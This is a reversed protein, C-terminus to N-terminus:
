RRRERRRVARARVAAALLRLEAGATEPRSPQGPRRARWALRLLPLMDTEASVLQNLAARDAPRLTSGARMLLVTAFQGIRRLEYDAVAALEAGLRAPLFRDVGLALPLWGPGRPLGADLRDQRRGTVAQDHQRYSHLPRDVFEIRGAALACAAIWQDHFASPTGPPFPLVRERVLDARVLSAAGTVTNLLLLAALDDWQNVRHEWFSPALSRGDADILRLDSYVLTTNPDATLRALLVGLKDPDWVDDQDCLAVADADPPVLRLAREFNRYFGLNTAGPVLAFRQEGDILARTSALSEAGSGDDSIVCIWNRHTQARLSDLQQALHQPDPRYTALCIAVKPGDAPWSLAALAPPNDKVPTPAPRLRLPGLDRRLEAGDSLQVRLAVPVTVPRGGDRDGLEAGDVDPGGADAGGLDGPYLAIRTRAGSAVPARVGEARLAAAVDPRHGGLALRYARNGFLLEASRVPLDRHVLWGSVEVVQGAGVPIPEAPLPLDYYLREDDRPLATPLYRSALRVATSGTLEALRARTQALQDRLAAAEDQADSRARAEVANAQWARNAEEVAAALDAFALALRADKGDLEDRDRDVQHRLLDLERQAQDLAAAAREAAARHQNLETAVATALADKEALVQRERDAIWTTADRLDQETKERAQREITLASALAGPGGPRRWQQAPGPQDAETSIAATTRTAPQGTVAEQLAAEAAVLEDWRADATAVLGIPECLRRLVDRASAGDPWPHPAHDAVIERGFELLGRLQALEADVGSGALWERDVRTLEGDPRLIFNGPHVDLHDAPLVRVGRRRPLYPHKADNPRLGRASALCSDRWRVILEGLRDLDGTRLADLLHADLARGPVLYEAPQHQQRLWPHECDPGRETTHLVLDESLRRVRRWEPLRAASALWALGPEVVADLAITSRAAVVLFAPAVAAGIGDAVALGHLPRGSTVADNGGFVGHLPERVLKDVLEAADPRAFVREDLIVRPLKHDPYPLLWRQAALGADALLGSLAHRTWTRSQTTPGPYDALGIWSRDHHDETGGLLYKLGLQNEIALVLVGDESLTSTVARLLEAPGPGSRPSYELVGCLVALDRQGAGALGSELTDRVIRVGPLDRCRERAAEARDPDAEIGLVDAGVEGFARALVGSGCGADLVRLGRRLRLPALLALRQPAFHYALEWSNALAALEASGASVDAASRLAALAALVAPEAGNAQGVAPHTPEASM